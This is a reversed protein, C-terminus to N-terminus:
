DAVHELLLSYCDFGYMDYIWVAFSEMSLLFSRSVVSTYGALYLYPRCGILALQSSLCALSLCVMEEHHM